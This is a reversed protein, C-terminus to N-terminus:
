LLYLTRGAVRGDIVAIPPASTRPDGASGNGRRHLSSASACAAMRAAGHRDIRKAAWSPVDHRPLPFKAGRDKMLALVEIANGAGVPLPPPPGKKEPWGEMFGYRALVRYFGSARDAHGDIRAKVRCARQVERRSRHELLAWRCTSSATTSSNKALAPPAV